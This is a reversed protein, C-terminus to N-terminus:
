FMKQKVMIYFGVVIFFISLVLIYILAYPDDYWPLPVNMGFLSFIMTPFALIITIATLRQMVTNLNNSIVSSFADRTESLISSYVSAMEMAQKNEVIVDELLDKDDQYQKINDMRLMKELVIENARLAISFYVLSKELELLYLLDKNNVNEQLGQEVVDSVRDIYRLYHLYYSANKYLLQLIFRTRKSTYFGRIKEDIFDKLLNLPYICITMLFNEGVIIELPITIFEHKGDSDKIPVDVVIITYDEETSIHAKEEEDLGLLIDRADVATMKVALEIEEKTPEYLNIWCGDQLEKIQHLKGIEDTNYIELM